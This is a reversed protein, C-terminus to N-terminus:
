IPDSFSIPTCFYIFLKYKSDLYKIIGRLSNGHAVIIIRKQLKIQPVIVDNWYPLTRQITLKLSECKPFEAESPADKYRSDKVIQDYYPHDVEM